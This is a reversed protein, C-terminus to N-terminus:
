LFHHGPHHSRTSHTLLFLGPSVDQYEEPMTHGKRYIGLGARVAISLTSEFLPRSETVRAELPFGLM